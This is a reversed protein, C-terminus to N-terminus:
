IIIIGHGVYLPIELRIFQTGASSEIGDEDMKERLSGGAGQFLRASETYLDASRAKARGKTINIACLHASQDDDISEFGCRATYARLDAAPLRSLENYELADLDADNLERPSSKRPRARAAAAPELIRQIVEAKNGTQVVGLRACEKKLKTVSWTNLIAESHRSM